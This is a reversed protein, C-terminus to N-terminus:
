TELEDRDIRIVGGQNDEYVITRIFRRREPGIATVLEEETGEVDIKVLDIEGERGLIEDLASAISVGRVMLSADAPDSAVAGYRGTPEQRFGFVGNEVTLAAEVLTYSAEWGRLNQRLRTVNRPDPEYCYVHAAPSRTLFFLAALGINAGVDVVVRLGRGPGYDERCFIETITRADHSSFLTPHIPGAPSRM